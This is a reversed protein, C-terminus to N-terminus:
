LIEQRVVILLFVIFLRFAGFIESLGKSFVESCESCKSVDSILFFFSLFYSVDSIQFIFCAWM